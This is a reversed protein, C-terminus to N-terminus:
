PPVKRRSSLDELRPPQRGAVGVIGRGGPKSAIMVGFVLSTQISVGVFGSSCIRSMAAMASTLWLGARLERDIVGEGRGIQLLRELEAGVEDNVARRLIEAAMGIDDAAADDARLLQQSGIM